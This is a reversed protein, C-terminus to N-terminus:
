KSKTKLFEIFDRHIIGINQMIDNAKYGELWGNSDAVRTCIIVDNKGWNLFPVKIECQSEEWEDRIVNEFILPELTNHFNFDYIWYAVLIQKNGQEENEFELDIM